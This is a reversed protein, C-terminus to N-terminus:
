EVPCGAGKSPLIKSNAIVSKPLQECAEGAGEVLQTDKLLSFFKHLAARESRIKTHIELGSFTLFIKV